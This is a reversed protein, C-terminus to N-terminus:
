SVTITSTVTGSTSITAATGSFTQTNIAQKHYYVNPGAITSASGSFTGTVGKTTSTLPVLYKAGTFTISPTDTPAYFNTVDTGAGPDNFGTVVSGFSVNVKSIVLKSSDFGGGTFSGGTLSYTKVGTLAATPTVASIHLCESSDVTAVVGQSVFSGTTQTGASTLTPFSCTAATFPNASWSTDYVIKSPNATPDAENNVIHGVTATTIYIESFNNGITGEIQVGGTNKSLSAGTVYNTLSSISITGSPTYAITGVDAATSATADKLTVNITGAPTYSGTFTASTNLTGAATSKFALAKLGLASSLSASTIGTNISLGAIPTTKEVYGSLDTETSGIKEWSYSYNPSTGTRITIYEDKVNKTGTNDAPVLYLKYMTDASAVLEGTIPTDGSHWVVDQPTNSADTSVVVDFKNITGIQSDVYDKVASATPLYATSTVTTTTSAWAATGLANGTWADLQADTTLGLLQMLANRSGADALDYVVSGVKVKKLYAM